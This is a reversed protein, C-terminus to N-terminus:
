RESVSESLERKAKFFASIFQVVINKRRLKEQNSPNKKEGIYTWNPYEGEIRQINDYITSKGPLDEVGLMSLYNLYEVPSAFPEIDKVVGENVAKMIYSYDGPKRFVQNIQLLQIALKVCEDIFARTESIDGVNIVEVQPCLQIFGM